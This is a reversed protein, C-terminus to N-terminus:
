SFKKLLNNLFPFFQFIVKFKVFRLSGEKLFHWKCFQVVSLQVFNCPKNRCCFGSFVGSGSNSSSGSVPALAPASCFRVPEAVSSCFAKMFAVRYCSVWFWLRTGLVWKETQISVPPSSSSSSCAPPTLEPWSALDCCLYCDCSLM